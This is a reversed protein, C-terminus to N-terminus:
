WESIGIEQPILFVVVCATAAAAAVAAAAVVIDHNGILVIRKFIILNIRELSM